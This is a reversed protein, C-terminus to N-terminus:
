KRTREFSWLAAYKLFATYAGLISRTLGYRGELMGGGLFYAKIFRWLPNIALDTWSARRGANWLDIAGLEAYRNMKDLQHRLDRYPHHLLTGDLEGTDAIPELHDHPRAEVYRQERKHLRDVWDRGWGGRRQEHGLWFNRRRVRYAAHRPAAVAAGIAAILESTFREDADLSFIWANRAKEFAQNRQKGTGPGTGELVVAGAARAAEISGDTSGGDAVLVEDAWLCGRVCDAIQHGENLVPIVVTVPVKATM